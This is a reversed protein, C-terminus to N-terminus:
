SLSLLPGKPEPQTQPLFQTTGVCGTETFLLAARRREWKLGQTGPHGPLQKTSRAWLGTGSGRRGEWRVCRALGPRVHADEWENPRRSDNARHGRRRRCLAHGPRVQARTDSAARTGLPGACGPRGPRPRGAAPRWSCGRRWCWLRTAMTRTQFDRGATAGGRGWARVRLRFSPVPLARHCRAGRWDRLATERESRSEPQESGGPAADAKLWFHADSSNDWLPCLTSFDPEPGSSVRLSRNGCREDALNVTSKQM